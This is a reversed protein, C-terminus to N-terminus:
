VYFVNWHNYVLHPTKSRSRLDQYTHFLVEFLVPELSVLVLYSTVSVVITFCRIGPNLFEAVNQLHNLSLSGPRRMSHAIALGSIMHLLM